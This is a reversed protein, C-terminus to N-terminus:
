EYYAFFPAWLYGVEEIMSRRVVVAAGSVSNVEQICGYDSTQLTTEATIPDVTMYSYFKNSTDFLPEDNNWFYSRGGVVAVKSDDFVPLAEDLYSSDIVADNNLLLIYDGKASKYGDIHGGTFGKNKRNSIYTIDGLDSLYDKDDKNSGNDVVIIEYNPYKLNRVSELCLKTDELGNWNLIVISVLPKNHKGVM